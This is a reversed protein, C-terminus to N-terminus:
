CKGIYRGRSICKRSCYTKDRRKSRFKKGCAPCTRERGGGAYEDWIQQYSWGENRRKLVLADSVGAAECFANQNVFSEDGFAIEIPKSHYDPAEELGMAQEPSWGFRVRQSATQPSIGYKEAAAQISRFRQGKVMISIPGAGEWPELGAAQEPTYGNRLRWNFKTAEIDYYDAAAAQTAFLKGDVKVEIGTGIDGGKSSNYGSKILDRAQIEEVEQQMLEQYNKADNRLLSIQFQDAGYKRIARYLIQPRDSNEAAYIHQGLRQHLSSVTIGVYEKGNVKNEILYLKYEGSSAKPYIKGEIEEFSALNTKRPSRDINRHRHPKPDLGAAERETWGRAIRREIVNRPLGFAANMAAASPYKTGLFDVAKSNNAMRKPPPEVGAAQEPTWNLELRRKFAGEDIGFHKAAQRVSGFREELIWIPIANPAVRKDLPERDIAQEVSYGAALRRVIQSYPKKFKKALAKLSPYITGEFKIQKKPM